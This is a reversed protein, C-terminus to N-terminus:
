AETGADLHSDLAVTRRVEPVGLCFCSRLIYFVGTSSPTNYCALAAAFLQLAPIQCTKAGPGEPSVAAGASAPTVVWLPARARLWAQAVTWLEFEGDRKTWRPFALAIM